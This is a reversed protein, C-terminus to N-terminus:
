RDNILEPYLAKVGEKVRELSKKTQYWENGYKKELFFYIENYQSKSPRRILGNTWNLLDCEYEYSKKIERPKQFKECEYKHVLDDIFDLLSCCKNQLKINEDYSSLYLSDSQTEFISLAKKFTNISNLEANIRKIYENYSTPSDGSISKESSVKKVKEVVFGKGCKECVVTKGLDTKIVEYTQQCHPCVSILPLVDLINDFFKSTQKKGLIKFGESDIDPLLYCLYDFQIETIPEDESSKEPLDVMRGEFDIQIKM